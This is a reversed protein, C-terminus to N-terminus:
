RAPLGQIFQTLERVYFRAMGTTGHGRTEAGAPILLLQAGPVEKLAAQM